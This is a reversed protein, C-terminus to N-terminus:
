TRAVAGVPADKPLQALYQLGMGVAMAAVFVVASMAGSGLSVIAPGPCYGGLGWGLGFVASGIVVRRDIDRAPPLHFRTDLLPRERRRIWRTLVFHVLIASMMVFMLSPDWSGFVDLFAIVKAPQTMGSLGLGIGFVIGAGLAALTSKM